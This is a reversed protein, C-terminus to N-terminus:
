QQLVQYSTRKKTYKGIIIGVTCGSLLFILALSIIIAIAAEYYLIPVCRNDVNKRWSDCHTVICERDQRSSCKYVGNGGFVKCPGGEICGSLECLQGWFGPLCNCKGTEFNCDGGNLCGM